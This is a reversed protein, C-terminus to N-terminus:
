PHVDGLNYPDIPKGSKDGSSYRARESGNYLVIFISLRDAYKQPKQYRQLIKPTYMGLYMRISDFESNMKADQVWKLLSESGFKVYHTKKLMSTEKITQYREICATALSDDVPQDLVGKVSTRDMGSLFEKEANLSQVSSDGGITVIDRASSDGSPSRDGQSCSIIGLMAAICPMVLIKKNM